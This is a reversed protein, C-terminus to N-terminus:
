RGTPKQLGELSATANRAWAELVEEGTPCQIENRCGQCLLVSPSVISFHDSGCRPCLQPRASLLEKIVRVWTRPTYYAEVRAAPQGERVRAPDVEPMRRRLIAAGFSTLLGNEELIRPALLESLKEIVSGQYFQVACDVELRFQIDVFDMSEAGLDEGLLSDPKVRDIPIRLVEAIINQVRELLEQDSPSM